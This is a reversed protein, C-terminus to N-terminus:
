LKNGDFDFLGPSKQVEASTMQKLLAMQQRETM